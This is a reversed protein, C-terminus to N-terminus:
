KMLQFKKLFPVQDKTVPGIGVATITPVGNFCHQSEGSDEILVCPLGREKALEYAEILRQLSSVALCVKTGIGDRGQYEKQVEQSSQLFAGIYAHGAQSCCKGLGM